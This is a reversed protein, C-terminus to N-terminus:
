QKTLQKFLKRAPLKINLNWQYHARKKIGILKIARNYYKKLDSDSFEYGESKHRDILMLSNCMRYQLRKKLAFDNKRLDKYHKVWLQLRSYNARLEDSWIAEHGRRYLTVIEKVYVIGRSACVRALFDTDSCAYKFSHDFWGVRDGDVKRFLATHLVSPIHPWFVASLGDEFYKLGMSESHEAPMHRQGTLNGEADIVAYDATALVAASHDSLAQYLKVIRDPHMLDDDDQFAIFEGRALQAANTRAVAIGQNEQWYYNLRSSYKEMLEATGDTSGDDMVIIEVPKYNQVFVSELTKEIYHARNYCNVIITVLPNKNYPDEM